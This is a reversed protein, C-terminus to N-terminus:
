ANVVCQCSSLFRKNRQMGWMDAHIDTTWRDITIGMQTM